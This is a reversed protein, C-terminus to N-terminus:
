KDATPKPTAVVSDYILQINEALKIIEVDKDPTEQANSGLSALVGCLLSSVILSNKLYM